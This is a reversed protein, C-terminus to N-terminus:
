HHAIESSIEKLLRSLIHDPGTAKHVDLTALLQALGDCNIAIPLIDPFPLGQIPPPPAVIDQTFVSTFYKNLIDTKM